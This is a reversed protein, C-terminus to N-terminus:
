SKAKKAVAAVVDLAAWDPRLVREASPRQPLRDVTAEHLKGSSLRLTIRWMAKVSKGSKTIRPELPECKIIPGTAVATGIVGTKFRVSATCGLAHEAMEKSRLALRRKAEAEHSM